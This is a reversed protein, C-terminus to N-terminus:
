GDPSSNRSRRQLYWGGGGAATGLALLAAAGAILVTDSNEEVDVIEDQLPTPIPTCLVDAPAPSTLPTAAATSAPSEPAQADAPPSSPSPSLSADPPAPSASTTREATVVCPTATPAPTPTQGEPTPTQGEATPPASTVTTGGPPPTGGFFEAETNPPDIINPAIREPPCDQGIALAAGGIKDAIVAENQTDQTLPFVRSPPDYGIVLDSVGAAKARLTFRALVGNGREVNAEPTNEDGTISATDLVSLRYSGDADPLADTLGSFPQYRGVAALM